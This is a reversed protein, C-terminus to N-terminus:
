IGASAWTNTRGLSLSTVGITRQIGTSGRCRSPAAEWRVGLYGMANDTNLLLTHDSLNTDVIIFAHTAEYALRRVARTYYIIYQPLICPGEHEDRGGSGDHRCDRSGSSLRSPAPTSFINTTVLQAYLFQNSLAHLSDLPSLFVPPIHM